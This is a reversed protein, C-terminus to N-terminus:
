AAHRWEHRLSHVVNAGAEQAAQLTQMAYEPNHKFGDLFARRRLFGRARRKCLAVSDAIMQLNEELTTGLIETVHMDWTKGVLTVVPTQAAWCRGEPV